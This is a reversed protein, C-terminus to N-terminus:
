LFRAPDVKGPATLSADLVRWPTTKFTYPAALGADEIRKAHKHHVV